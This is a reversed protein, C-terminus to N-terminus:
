INYLKEKLEEIKKKLKRKKLGAFLGKLSSMENYLILIMDNLQNKLIDKESVAEQKKTAIKEEIPKPKSYGNVSEGEITDCKPNQIQTHIDQKEQILEKIQQLNYGTKIEITENKISQQTCEELDSVKEEDNKGNQQLIQLTNSNSDEKTQKTNDSSNISREKYKWIIKDSQNQQKKLENRIKEISIGTKRAAETISAYEGIIKGKDYQCVAKMQPDPCYIVPVVDVIASNAPVKKWLYGGGSKKEGTINRQIIRKSIGTKKYAEDYTEYQEIFKGNTEYQRIVIRDDDLQKKTKGSCLLDNRVVVPAIFLGPCDTHIIEINKDQTIIKVQYEKLFKRVKEFSIYTQYSFYLLRIGNERSLELKRKDRKQYEEYSHGFFPVDKYHQEGQYEIAIRQDPLFIDYSQQGLWDSHFQFIAEPCLQKVFSYLKYESFWKNQIRNESVMCSFLKDKQVKQQKLYQDIISELPFDTTQTYNGAENLRKLKKLEEIFRFSPSFNLLYEKAIKMEERECNWVNCLVNYSMEIEDIQDGSYTVYYSCSEPDFQLEKAEDAIKAACYFRKDYNKTIKFKFHKNADFKAQQVEKVIIYISNLANILYLYYNQDTKYKIIENFSFPLGIQNFKDEIETLSDIM